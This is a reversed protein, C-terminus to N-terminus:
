QPHDQAIMFFCLHSAQALLPPIKVGFNDNVFDTMEDIDGSAKATAYLNEPVTLLTIQQGGYWYRKHNYDGKIDTYVKDPRRITM